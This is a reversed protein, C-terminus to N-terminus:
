FEKEKLRVLALLWLLGPFFYFLMFDFFRDLTAPLLLTGYDKGTHIEVSHFPTADSANEFIFKVILWNLITGGICITVVVLAVKIFTVKNFYFAGLLMSGALFLFMSYVKWAILGDFPFINVSDLQSKYYPSTPDLQHRYISVFIFDMGRYFLLFIAPYIIGVILVGCLWKEFHSAPLTLYSSGGANTTFYLFVLSALFCGGGAMGWIFSINQAANFGFLAKVITYLILILAFILGTFGFMQVPREMLSKRFLWAFRRTHFTNNM